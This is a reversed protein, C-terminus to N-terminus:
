IDEFSKREVTKLETQVSPSWSSSSAAGRSGSSAVPQQHQLQQQQQIWSTVCISSYSYFCLRSVLVETETTTEFTRYRRGDSTPLLLTSYSPPLRSLSPASPM